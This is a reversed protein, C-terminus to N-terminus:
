REDIFPATQVLVARLMLPQGGLGFRAGAWPRRDAAVVVVADLKGAPSLPSTLPVPADICRVRVPTASDTM